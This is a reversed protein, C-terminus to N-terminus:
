QMAVRMTAWHSGTLVASLCSSATKVEVLMYIFNILGQAQTHPLRTMVEKVLFAGSIPILPYPINTM